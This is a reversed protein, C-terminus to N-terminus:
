PKKGKYKKYLKKYIEWQVEEDARLVVDPNAITKIKGEDDFVFWDRYSRNCEECQPIFGAEPNRPNKHAKQLKTIRAPNKFNKEGEKSGCTVCRYNFYKKLEEFDKEKLISRKKFKPYPKELSVLYYFPEEPVKLNKLTIKDLVELHNGRQSSVIYWGKQRGLHRAQQVDTIDPYFERIFETLESKTVPKNHPYGNALFVLTLADKTFRGKNELKPLKVEEKKLYKEWYDKIMKYIEKIKGKNLKMEQNEQTKEEIIHTLM